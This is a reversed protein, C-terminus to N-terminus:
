PRFVVPREKYRRHQQQERFQYTVKDQGDGIGVLEGGRLLEEIVLTPEMNIAQVDDGGGGGSRWLSTRERVRQGSWFSFWVRGVKVVLSARVRFETFGDLAFLLAVELRLLRLNLSRIRILALRDLTSHALSM